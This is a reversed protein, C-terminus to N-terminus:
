KVGEAKVFKEWDEAWQDHGWNREIQKM